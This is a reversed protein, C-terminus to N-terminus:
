DWLLCILVQQAPKLPVAHPVLGLQNADIIDWIGSSVLHALVGHHFKLHLMPCQPTGQM